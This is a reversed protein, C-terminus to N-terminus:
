SSVKGNKNLKVSLYTSIFCGFAAPVIMRHDSIYILTACNGFLSIAAGFSAAALPNGKAIHRIYNAWLFNVLGVLLFVLLFKTM